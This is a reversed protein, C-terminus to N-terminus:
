PQTRFAQPSSPVNRRSCTNRMTSRLRIGVTAFSFPEEFFSLHRPLPRCPTLSAARMAAARLLDLVVLDAPYYPRVNTLLEAVSAAFEQPARRPLQWRRLSVCIASCDILQFAAEFPSKRPPHDPPARSFGDDIIHAYPATLVSRV